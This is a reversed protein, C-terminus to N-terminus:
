FVIEEEGVQSVWDFVILEKLGADVLFLELSEEVAETEEM